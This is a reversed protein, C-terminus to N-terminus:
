KKKGKKKEGPATQKKAQKLTEGVLKKLTPKDVDELKKIYLCGKGLSHKGLKELLAPYQTWGGMSYLTLNDKRPSFGLPFWDGERGSAYAYRMKGFGVIASGWMRPEAKTAKRMMELLAYADARKKEDAIADLFETVSADNEQTKLEAM